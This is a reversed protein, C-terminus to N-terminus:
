IKYIELIDGNMRFGFNSDIEPYIVDADSIDSAKLVFHSEAPYSVLGIILNDTFKAGKNGQILEYGCVLRYEKSLKVIESKKAIADGLAEITIDVVKETGRTIEVISNEPSSMKIFLKLIYTDGDIYVKKSGRMFMSVNAIEKGNVLYQKGKDTTLVVFYRDNGKCNSGGDPCNAAKTGSVHVITGKTTKFTVATRLYKNKIKSLDFSYVASASNLSKSPFLAMAKSTKLKGLNRDFYEFIDIDKGASVKDSISPAPMEIEVSADCNETSDEFNEYFIGANSLGYAQGDVIPMGGMAPRCQYAQGDVIPMAESVASGYAQLVGFFLAMALVGIKNMNNEIFSNM